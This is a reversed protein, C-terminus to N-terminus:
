FSRPHSHFTTEAGRNFLTGPHTRPILLPRRRYRDVAVHLSITAYVRPEWFWLEVRPGNDNKVLHINIGQGVEVIIESERQSLISSSNPVKDRSM